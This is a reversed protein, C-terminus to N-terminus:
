GGGDRPFLGTLQARVQPHSITELVQGIFDGHGTSLALRSIQTLAKFLGRLPRELSVSRNPPLEEEILVAHLSCLQGGGSM